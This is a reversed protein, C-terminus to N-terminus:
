GARADGLFHRYLRRHRERFLTAVIRRQLARAVGLNVRAAFTVRDEVVTGGDVGTVIREHDWRSASGMQSTELFRRGPEREALVLDDYDFPVVGGILLWARGLPEGLPVDDLSGDAYERPMRMRLWPRLEDDIGESTTVRAWVADPDVDPLWLRRVIRDTRDDLRVVEQVSLPRVPTVMAAAVADDTTPSPPTEETTM